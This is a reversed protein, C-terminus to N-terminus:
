TYCEGRVLQICKVVYTHPHHVTIEFGPFFYLVKKVCVFFSMGGHTGRWNSKVIKDWTWYLEHSALKGETTLHVVWALFCIKYMFLHSNM